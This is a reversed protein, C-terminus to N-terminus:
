RRLRQAFSLCSVPPTQSLRGRYSVQQREYPRLERLSFPCVVCASAIRFHDRSSCAFDSKGGPFLLCTRQFGKRPRNQTWENESFSFWIRSGSTLPHNM